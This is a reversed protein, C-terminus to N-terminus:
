WGEEDEELITLTRADVGHHQDQMQVDEDNQDNDSYQEEEEEGDNDEDEDEDTGNGNYGEEDDGEEADDPSKADLDHGEDESDNGTAGNNGEANDSDDDSSDDALLGYPEVLIDWYKCTFSSDTLKEDPHHQKKPLLSQSADPLFVVAKTNPITKQQAPVLQHYWSPDYFDIAIGKSAATFTSMVPQRPLQPVRRKRLSSPDQQAANKMVIDLARMFKSANKSCYGLTKIKHVNRQHNFENDSHAGIHSLVDVYRKPFKNVIAFEKRADCLRERNTAIRKHTAEEANERSKEEGKSIQYTPCLPRLSQLSSDLPIDPRGNLPQREHLQLRVMLGTVYRINNAGVHIVSRGYRISGARADQLLQIESTNILAPSTAARAAHEVDQGNSFRSYFEQLNHLEPAEPSRTKTTMFEKPFDAGNPNARSSSPKAMRLKIKLTPQKTTTKKAPKPQTKPKTRAPKASAKMSNVQNTLQSVMAEFRSTRAEVAADFAKQQNATFAPMPTSNPTAWNDM